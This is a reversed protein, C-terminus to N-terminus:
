LASPLSLIEPHCTWRPEDHCVGRSYYAHRDRSRTRTIIIHHTLHSLNTLVFTVFGKGFSESDDPKTM